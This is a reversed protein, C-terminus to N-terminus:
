NGNAWATLNEVKRPRQRHMERFHQHEKFITDLTKLNSIAPISRRPSPLLWVPLISADGAQERLTLAMTRKLHRRIFAQYFYVRFAMPSQRIFESHAQHVTSNYRNWEDISSIGKKLGERTMWLSSIFRDEGPLLKLGAEVLRWEIEIQPNDTYNQILQLIRGRRDENAKIAEFLPAQMKRIEWKVAEEETAPIREPPIAPFISQGKILWSIEMDQAYKAYGLTSKTLPGDLQDYLAACEEILQARQPRFIEDRRIFADRWGVVILTLMGGTVSLAIASSKFSSWFTCIYGRATAILGGLAKSTLELNM